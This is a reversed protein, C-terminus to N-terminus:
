LQYIEPTTGVCSILVLKQRPLPYTPNPADNLLHTLVSYTVKPEAQAWQDVGYHERCKRDRVELM